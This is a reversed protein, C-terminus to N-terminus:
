CIVSPRLNIAFIVTIGWSTYWQHMITKIVWQASLVGELREVGCQEGFIIGLKGYGM